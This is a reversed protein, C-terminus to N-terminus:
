HPNGCILEVTLGVLAESIVFVIEESSKRLITPGDQCM